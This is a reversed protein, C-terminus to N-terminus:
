RLFDLLSPQIIRAGAELAARYAAEQTTLKMIVEAMDADETESLLSTVQYISDQLRTRALELRHADAGVLARQKLLNDMGTDLDALIDSSVQGGSSLAARLDALFKQVADFAEVLATKGPLNVQLSVGAGIERYIAGDDGNCTWSATATDVSFPPTATKHGAFIYRDGYSANAVEGLQEFLRTVEAETARLTSAPASGVSGVALERVRQLVDGMQGLATDTIEMWNRGDDANALYREIQSLESRLGLARVTGVPDDSPVAIRRATALQREYRSLNRWNTRLDALVGDILMGTTIRM